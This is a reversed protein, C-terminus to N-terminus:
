AQDLFKSILAAAEEANSASELESGLRRVPGGEATWEFITPVGTLKLDAENRYPHDPSKWAPRDGVNM